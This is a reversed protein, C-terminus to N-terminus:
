KRPGRGFRSNFQEINSEWFIEFDERFTLNPPKIGDKRDQRNYFWMLISFLVVGLALFGFISETM